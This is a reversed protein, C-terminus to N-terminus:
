SVQSGKLKLQEALRRVLDASVAEANGDESIKSQIDCQKEISKVIKEEADLKIKYLQGLSQVIVSIDATRPLNRSERLAPIIKNKLEYIVEGTEDSIEEYKSRREELEEILVKVEKLSM